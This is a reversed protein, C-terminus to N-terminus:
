TESTTASSGNPYKRAMNFGNTAKPMASRIRQSRVRMARRLQASRLKTKGMVPM